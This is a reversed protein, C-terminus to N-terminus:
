LGENGLAEGASDVCLEGVDFFFDVAEDCVVTADGLDVGVEVGALELVHLLGQVIACGLTLLWPCVPPRNKQSLPVTRKVEGADTVAATRKVRLPKRLRVPAWCSLWARGALALGVEATRGRSSQEILSKKTKHPYPENM